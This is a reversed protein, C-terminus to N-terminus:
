LKHSKFNAMCVDLTQSAIPSLFMCHRVGTGHKLNLTRAHEVPVALWIPSGWNEFIWDWAAKWEAETPEHSAQKM